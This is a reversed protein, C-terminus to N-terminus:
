HFSDASDGQPLPPYWDRERRHSLVVKRIYANTAEEGQDALMYLLHELLAQTDPHMIYHPKGRLYYDLASRDTYAEKQYNKSAAVRDVYMEVVYNVPMRMGSMGTANRTADYDIWYEFHHRNRGKHHLWALSYGRSKRERNNPSEHGDTYYRCGNLFEVPAYKSLDHMLGQWYLGVAFCGKMVLMKHHNITRLHGLIRNM